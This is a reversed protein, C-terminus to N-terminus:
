LRYPIGKFGKQIMEEPSSLLPNQKYNVNLLFKSLLEKGMELKYEFNPDLVEQSVYEGRREEEKEGFLDEFPDPKRMTYFEIMRDVCKDMWSEFVSPIPVVHIALSSLFALSSEWEEPADDSFYIMPLLWTAACWLPGRVPGLWEDRDLEFYEMYSRHINACWAGEALQFPLPDDSVIRFRFVIWEYIGIGLAIKAHLGVQAMRGILNEPNYLFDEDVRTDDWVYNLVPSDLSTAVIYPPISYPM